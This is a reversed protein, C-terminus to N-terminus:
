RRRGRQLLYADLYAVAMREHAAVQCLLAERRAIPLGARARVVRASVEAVLERAAAYDPVPAVHIPRQPDSLLRVVWIAWADFDRLDEEPAGAGLLTARLTALLERTTPSAVPRPGTDAPPAPDERAPASM